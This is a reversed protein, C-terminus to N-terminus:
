NIDLGLRRYKVKLNAIADANGPRILDREAEYQAKLQAMANRPPTAGQQPMIAGDVTNAQEAQELELRKQLLANKLSVEDKFQSAFEYDAQTITSPNFGVAEFSGVVDVPKETQPSAQGQGSVAENEQGLVKESLQQLLNDREIEKVRAQQEPSLDIQGLIDGVQNELRAIRRDKVKQTKTEAIQAIRKEVSPHSLLAEITKDDLSIPASGEESDDAGQAELDSDPPVFDREPLTM